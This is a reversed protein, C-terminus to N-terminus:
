AGASDPDTQPISESLDALADSYCGIEIQNPCHERHRLRRGSGFITFLTVRSQQSRGKGLGGRGHLPTVFALSRM